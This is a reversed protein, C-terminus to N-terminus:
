SPPNGLALALLPCQRYGDIMGIARLEPELFGGSMCGNLGLQVAKLWVHGLLAGARVLADAVDAGSRWRFLMDMDVEALMILPASGISRQNFCDVMAGERLPMEMLLRGDPGPAHVGPQLPGAVRMSVVRLRIPLAQGGAATIVADRRIFADALLAVKEPSVPTSAFQRVAQRDLMIRALQRHAAGGAPTGDAVAGAERTAVGAHLASFGFRATTPDEAKRASELSLIFCAEHEGYLNSLGLGRLTRSPQWDSHDRTFLGLSWAAEELFTRAVGSDLHVIRNTLARYKPRLRKGRGVGIVMASGARPTSVGLHMPLNRVEQESCVLVLSHNQSHYRYLGNELGDVGQALVYGEPSRLGGGTPAIKRLTGDEKLDYGYAAQLCASLHILGLTGEVPPLAGALMLSEVRGPLLLEPGSVEDDPRLYIDRLAPSYHREHTRPAILQQPPLMTACLGHWAAEQDGHRRLPAAAALGCGRCGPMRCVRQESQRWGKGDRGHLIVTDYLTTGSLKLIISVAAHGVISVQLADNGEVRGGAWQGAAAVSCGFCASYGPLRLPGVSFEGGSLCAFLTPVEDAGPLDAQNAFTGDDSLLIIHTARVDRAQAISVVRGVGAELLQGALDACMAAPGAVLIVADRLTRAADGRSAHYGAAPLQRGIFSAVAPPVGAPVDPPGEELLGARNLLAVAQPIFPAYAPATAVIEDVTLSGDLRPWLDNLMGRVHQGSLLQRTAGGIALLRDQGLPALVIDRIAAPRTPPRAIIDSDGDYAMLADQASLGTM